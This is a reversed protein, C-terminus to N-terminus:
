LSLKLLGVLEPPVTFSNTEIVTLLKEAKEAGMEIEKFRLKTTFLRWDV